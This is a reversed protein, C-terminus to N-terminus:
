NVLGDPTPHMRGGVIHIERGDPDTALVPRPRKTKHEYLLTKGHPNDPQGAYKDSSYVISHIEGLQAVVKPANRAGRVIRATGPEIQNLHRFTRRARAVESDRPNSRAKGRVMRGKPRRNRRPWPRWDDGRPARQGQARLAQEMREISPWEKVIIDLDSTNKVTTREPHPPAFDHLRAGAMRQGIRLESVARRGPNRGKPNSHTDARYHRPFTWFLRGTLHEELQVRKGRIIKVTYSHGANQLGTGVLVSGVAIGNGLADYLAPNKRVRGVGFAARRQTDLRRVGRRVSASAHYRAKAFRGSAAARRQRRPMKPPNTKPGQWTFEHNQLQERGYDALERAVLLRTPVNRHPNNRGERIGPAQFEKPAWKFPTPKFRPKRGKGKPNPRRPASLTFRAALDDRDIWERNGSSLDTVTVRGGAVSVIRVSGGGRRKWIQGPVPAHSPNPRHELAGSRHRVLPHDGIDRPTGRNALLLLPVRVVTAIGETIKAAAESPINYLDAIPVENVTTIVHWRAAKSKGHHVLSPNRRPAYRATPSATPLLDVLEMQAGHIDAIAQAMRRALASANTYLDAAPRQNVSWVVRWFPGRM